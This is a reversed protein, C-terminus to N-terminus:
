YSYDIEKAKLLEIQRNAFRNLVKYYITDNSFWDGGTGDSFREKVLRNILYLNNFEKSFSSAPIIEKEANFFLYILYAYVYQISPYESEFQKHREAALVFKFLISELKDLTRKSNSFHVYLRSIASYENFFEVTFGPAWNYKLIITLNDYLPKGEYDFMKVFLKGNSRIDYKYLEFTYGHLEVTEIESCDVIKPGFYYIERQPIHDLNERITKITKM